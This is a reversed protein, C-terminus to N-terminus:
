IFKTHVKMSGIHKDDFDDLFLEITQYEPYNKIVPAFTSILGELIDVKDDNMYKGFIKLHNVDDKVYREKYTIIVGKLPFILEAINNSNYEEMKLEIDSQIDMFDDRNNTLFVNISAIMGYVTEALLNMIEFFDEYTYEKIDIVRDTKKKNRLIVKKNSYDIDYNVHAESNRIIKEVGETLINLKYKKQDNFRGAIEAFGTWELVEEIDTNNNTLINCCYLILKSSDRYIGECLDKYWRIASHIIIIDTPSNGFIYAFSQSLERIKQMMYIFKDLYSRLFSQLKTPNHQYARNIMNLSVQIKRFYNEDDFASIGVFRFATLNLIEEDSYYDIPNDLIHKFYYYTSKKIDNINERIDGEVNNSIMMGVIASINIDGNSFININSNINEAGLISGIVNIESTAINLKEQADAEIQKAEDLTNATTSFILQISSDKFSITTALIRRIINKWISNPKISLLKFILNFIGELYQHVLTLTIDLDLNEINESTLNLDKFVNMNCLDSLTSIIDVAISYYDEFEEKLRTGKRFEKKISKLRNENMEILKLISEMKAIRMDVCPDSEFNFESFPEGCVKCEKRVCENIHGNNCEVVKFDILINIM